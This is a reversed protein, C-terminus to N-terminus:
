SSGGMGVTRPLVFDRKHSLKPRKSLIADIASVDAPRLAAYQGPKLSRRQSVAASGKVDHADERLASRMTETPSTREAVAALEDFGSASLVAAITQFPTACLDEYRVCAQVPMAQGEHQRVVDGIEEM